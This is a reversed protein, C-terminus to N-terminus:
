INHYHGDLYIRGRDGERKKEKEKKVTVRDFCHRPDLM